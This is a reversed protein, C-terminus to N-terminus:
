FPVEESTEGVEVDSPLDNDSAAADTVLVAGVPHCIRCDDRCPVQARQNMEHVSDGAKQRLEDVCRSLTFLFQKLPSDTIMRGPNKKSPRRVEVASLDDVTEVGKFIKHRMKLVTRMYADPYPHYVALCPRLRNRIVWLLNQKKPDHTPVKGALQLLEKKVDGFDDQDFDNFSIHEGRALTDAHRPKHGLVRAFVEYRKEKDNRDWGQFECAEPWIEAMMYIRQQKNM